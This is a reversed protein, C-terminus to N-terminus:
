AAQRKSQLWALLDDRLILRRAGIRLSKLDGTKIAAYLFTRSLRSAKGAEDISYVIPEIPEPPSNGGIGHRALDNM